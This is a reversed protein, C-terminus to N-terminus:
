DGEDAGEGFGVEEDSVPEDQETEPNSAEGKEKTGSTEAPATETRATGTEAATTGAKDDGSEVTDTGAQSSDSVETGTEAKASEHENNGKCGTMALALTLALLAIKRKM